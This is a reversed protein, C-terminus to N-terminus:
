SQITLSLEVIEECVDELDPMYGNPTLATRVHMGSEQLKSQWHRSPKGVYGDTLLIIKHYEREVSHKWVCAGDTGGTTRFSGQALQAPTIEVVCESFAFLAVLKKAVYPRVVSALVEWYARTSGSVDVYVTTIGTEFTINRHPIVAQYVLPSWGLASMVFARRDRLTPLPSEIRRDFMDARRQTQNGLESRQIMKRVLRKLIRDAAPPRRVPKLLIDRLEGGVSRGRIPEPPQPWKEVINRVAGILAPNNAASEGKGPTDEQSHDGLLFTEEKSEGHQGDGKGNPIGGSLTKKLEPDNTLLDYVEKYTGSAPSYLVRIMERVSRPLSEPIRWEKPWGDPPRLLADPVSDAVYIKQFLSFYMQDRFLQSLIANIVADFAINDLPNTRRFLRTHGLLVHHLEHMVLMFLHEDTKCADAVFDPNLLLRPAAVCEIAATAVDRSALVDTLRFFTDLAYHGAPFAALIRMRLHEGEQREQTIVKM